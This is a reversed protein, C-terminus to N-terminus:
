PYLLYLGIQHLCRKWQIVKKDLPAVTQSIAENNDKSDSNRSPDEIPQGDDTIIPATIYKGSGMVAVM